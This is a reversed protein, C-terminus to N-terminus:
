EIDGAERLAKEIAEISKPATKAAIKRCESCYLNGYNVAGCAQCIPHSHPGTELCTLLPCPGDLKVEKEM